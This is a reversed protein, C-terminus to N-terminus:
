KVVRKSGKAGGSELNVEDYGDLIKLPSQRLFHPDNGTVMNEALPSSTGERRRM